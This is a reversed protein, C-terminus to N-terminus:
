EVVYHLTKSTFLRRGKPSQIEICVSNKIGKESQLIVKYEKRSLNGAYIMDINKNNPPGEKIVFFKYENKRPNQVQVEITIANLHKLRIHNTKFPNLFTHTQLLEDGEEVGYQVVGASIVVMETSFIHAQEVYDAVPLGGSEVKVLPRGCGVCLLVVLLIFRKM